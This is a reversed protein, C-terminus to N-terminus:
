IHLKATIAVVEKHRQEARDERKAEREDSRNFWDMVEQHRQEARNELKEERIDRRIDRKEEREDMKKFWDLVEKHRLEGQENITKLSEKIWRGNNWTLWALVITLFTIAIGFVEM